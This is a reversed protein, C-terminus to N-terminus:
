SEGKFRERKRKLVIGTVSRVFGRKKLKRQIVEPHFRANKRLINIERESWDPEKKQKAILGWQIAWRTIRWRPMGFRKALENVENSGTHSQYVKVIEEKLSETIPWKRM